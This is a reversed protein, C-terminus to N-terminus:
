NNTDIIIFCFVQFDEDDYDFDDAEEDSIETGNEGTAFKMLNYKLYHGENEDMVTFLTVFERDVDYPMLNTEEDRAYDPKTILIPGVLGTNTDATEDIHSHYWWFKSSFENDSGATNDRCDWIYVWKQGPLVKSGGKTLVSKKYTKDFNNKYMAGESLENYQVGHPHMSYNGSANNFFIIKIREGVIGRIVPGLVGLHEWKSNREKQTTFTIDTYERYVAKQYISGIRYEGPATYVSASEDDRVEINTFPNVTGNPAYDWDVDIAAIYYVRDAEISNRLTFNASLIPSIIRSSTLELLVFLLHFYIM